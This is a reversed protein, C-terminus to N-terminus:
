SGYTTNKGTKNNYNIELQMCNHNSLISSIIEIKKFKDLNAKHRAHMRCHIINLTCNFLIHKQQKQISYERDHDHHHSCLWLYKGLSLGLVQFPYM